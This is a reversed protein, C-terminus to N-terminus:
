PQAPPSYGPDNVAYVEFNYNTGPDLGIITKQRDIGKASKKVVAYGNDIPNAQLVYWKIDAGGDDTPPTWSITADTSNVM